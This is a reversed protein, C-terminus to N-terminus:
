MGWPCNAVVAGYAFWHHFISVIKKLLEIYNETALAESSWMSVESVLALRQANKRVWSLTYWRSSLGLKGLKM